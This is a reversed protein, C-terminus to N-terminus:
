LRARKEQARRWSSNGALMVLGCGAMMRFAVFPVPAPRRDPQAKPASPPARLESRAAESFERLVDSWKAGEPKMVDRLDSLSRNPQHYTAVIVSMLTEARTVTRPMSWVRMRGLM